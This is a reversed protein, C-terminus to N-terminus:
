PAGVTFVIAAPPREPEVLEVRYNGAPLPDGNVMRLTWNTEGNAAPVPEGQELILQDGFYWRVGLPFGVAANQWEYHAMVERTGQPFATGADPAENSRVGFVAVV